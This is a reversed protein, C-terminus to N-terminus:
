AANAKDQAFTVADAEPKAGGIGIAVFAEAIVPLGDYRASGKFYTLDEVYRYEESPPAITMGAREAMLYMDGYGGIIVDDPMFSLTEIAGGIVPMTGMQGATIAGAANISLSNAVLKTRTRENMAFFMAGRSYESKAAGIAEILAKFLQADTKGTIAVVNSESVNKWPITSGNEPDVTQALRTMIGMPMKRGTGYLIAKDVAIGIAQGLANIIETMLSIPDSVDELLANCAYMYGGVKYGDVEVGGFSLNLENLKACAETWVAEPVAGMVIQRAKGPVSRLNVHKLLKSYAAINERILDLAVTPIALEAGSVARKQGKMERVREILDKIDARAFFADRQEMTMGFFKRTNMNKDEERKENTNNQGSNERSRRAAEESRANLADLEAQLSDIQRQLGETAERNADEEQTLAAEDAEWQQAQEELMDRDEQPTEETVERTAEELEAERQEIAARRQELATRKESETNMQGRLEDLQRRLRMQRLAM